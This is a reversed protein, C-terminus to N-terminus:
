AIQTGARVTDASIDYVATPTIEIIGSLTREPFREKMMDVAQEFVDGSTVYTAAGKVQVGSLGSWCALAIPADKQLNEISKGMFFNYLRIRASVVEVVSVPVVNVGHPGNTAFAKNEANEIQTCVESSLEM